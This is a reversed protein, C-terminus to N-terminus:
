QRQGKLVAEEGPQGEGHTMLGGHGLGPEDHQQPDDGEGVPVVRVAEHAEGQQQHQEVGPGHAVRVEPQVHRRHAKVRHNQEARGEQACGEGVRGGQGQPKQEVMDGGSEAHQHRDAGDAARLIQFPQGGAARYAHQHGGQVAHILADLPHLDVAGIHIQLDVGPHGSPHLGKKVVGVGEALHQQQEQGQHNRQDEAGPTQVAPQDGAADENHAAAPM